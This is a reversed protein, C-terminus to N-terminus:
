RSSVFLIQAVIHHFEVAQEKPLPKVENGEIVQFLHEASPAFFPSNIEEPFYNFIRGIYNIM